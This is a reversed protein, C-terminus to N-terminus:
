IMFPIAALEGVGKGFEKAGSVTEEAEKKYLDSIDGYGGIQAKKTGIGPQFGRAAQQLQGIAIGPARLGLEERALAERNYAGTQGLADLYAQQEQLGRYRPSEPSVGMRQLGRKEAERQQEARRLFRASAMGGRAAIDEPTGIKKVREATMRALPVAERAIGLQEEGIGGLQFLGAEMGRRYLRQQKRSPRALYSGLIGGTFEGIQGGIDMGGSLGGLGDGLSFAM